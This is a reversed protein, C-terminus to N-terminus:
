RLVRAQYDPLALGAAQDSAGLGRMPWEIMLKSFGFTLALLCVLALAVREAVQGQEDTECASVKFWAAVYFLTSVLDTLADYGAPFPYINRWKFFYLIATWAYAIALAVSLWRLTRDKPLANGAVAPLALLLAFAFCVFRTVGPSPGAALKEIANKVVEVLVAGLIVGGVGLHVIRDGLTDSKFVWEFM